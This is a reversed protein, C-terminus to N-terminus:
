RMVPQSPHHQSYPGCGTPRHSVPQADHDGALDLRQAADDLLPALGHEAASEVVSMTVRFRAPFQDGRVLALLAPHPAAM